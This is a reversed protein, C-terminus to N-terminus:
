AIQLISYCIIIGSKEGMKREENKVEQCILSENCEGKKLALFIM